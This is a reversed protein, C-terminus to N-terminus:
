TRKDRCLSGVLQFLRRFETTNKIERIFSRSNNLPTFLGVFKDPGNQMM